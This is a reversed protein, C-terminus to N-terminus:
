RFVNRQYRKDRSVEIFVGYVLGPTKQKMNQIMSEDVSIYNNLYLM